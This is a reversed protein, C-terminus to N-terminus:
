GRGGPSGASSEAAAAAMIRVRDAWRAAEHALLAKPIADVRATKWLRLWLTIALQLDVLEGAADSDLEVATWDVLHRAEDLLQTASDAHVSHPVLSAARALIDAIAHLRAGPPDRLFQARAAKGEKPGAAAPLAHVEGPGDGLFRRVASEVRARTERDEIRVWANGHQPRVNVLAEVHVEGSQPYWTAGWLDERRTGETLLLAAGDVHLEGGAAAIQQRLDVVVKILVRWDELTAAIQRATAPERLLVIM